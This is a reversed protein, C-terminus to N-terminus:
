TQVINKLVAENEAPLYQKLLTLAVELCSSSPRSGIPSGRKNAIM